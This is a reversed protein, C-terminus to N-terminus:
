KKMHEKMMSVLEPFRGECQSAPIVFASVTSMYVYAANARYTIKRIDEWSFEQKQDNQSIEVGKDDFVYHFPQQFEEMSLQKKGKWLLMMPQFVTFLLALVILIGRQTTTWYSWRVCLVIVAAISIIIGLIGAPRVYNHYLLFSNLLKKDLRVDLEILM